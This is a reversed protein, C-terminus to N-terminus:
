PPVNDHWSAMIHLVFRTEVTLTPSVHLTLRQTAAGPPDFDFIGIMHFDFNSDQGFPLGCNFNASSPLGIAHTVIVDSTGTHGPFMSSLPKVWSFQTQDNNLPSSSTGSAIKLVIVVNISARVHDGVRIFHGNGFGLGCADGRSIPSEITGGALSTSPWSGTRYFIALSPTLATPTTVIDIGSCESCLQAQGALQRIELDPGTGDLILTSAAGSDTINTITINPVFTSNEPEEVILGFVVTEGDTDVTVNTGGEVKLLSFFPGTGDAIVSVQGASPPSVADVITNRVGEVLRWIGSVADFVVLDHLNWDDEGDLLTSGPSCVIYFEGDMGVGSALPPTNDSANWCGRFLAAAVFIPPLHEEPIISDNGLPAYGDAQAKESLLQFEDLIMEKTEEADNAVEDVVNAFRKSRVRVGNIAFTLAFLWALGLVGILCTVTVGTTTATFLNWDQSRDYPRPRLM